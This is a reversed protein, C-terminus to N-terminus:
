DSSSWALQALVLAFAAIKAFPSLDALVVASAGIFQVAVVVGIRVRRRRRLAASLCRRRARLHSSDRRIVFARLRASM